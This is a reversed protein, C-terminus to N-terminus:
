EGAGGQRRNAAGRDWIAEAVRQAESKVSEEDLTLLRGAKMVPVGDVIVTHVHHPSRYLVMLDILNEQTVPASFGAEVLVVDALKGKELAGVDHLGLARAGSTTGLDFVIRPPMVTGDARHARHIMIAGRMVEFYDNILGDTGMGLTMGHALYEPVPAVGCGPEANGLPQHSLKVGREAILPIERERVHVAQSALVDPGLFGISEYVEFPLKGYTRLCHLAEYRSESIHMHICAGLDDALKRAKKLYPLSCSFTTHVCMMGSLRGKGPANDRVFRANEDLGLQANEPSVRETAEFMLVARMGAKDLVEGAVDLCGPLAYPAEMVDCVTTVGSRILTAASLAASVRIAEHDMQDEVKPWWSDVLGYYLDSWPQDAPMGHALMGYMHMHTNVLGPMVVKDTADVLEGAGHERRLVENSAVQAIRNGEIRVGWGAKPRESASTILHGGLITTSPM